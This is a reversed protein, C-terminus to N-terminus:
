NKKFFFYKKLEPFPNKNYYVNRNIILYFKSGSDLNKILIDFLQSILNM